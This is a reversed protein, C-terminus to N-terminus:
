LRNSIISAGMKHSIENAADRVMNGLFTIDADKVRSKIFSISIAAITNGSYGFIPAGVCASEPQLERDEFSYGRQRTKILDEKLKEYSVITRETYKIFNVGSNLYNKIQDDDYTSLIAKGLATCYMPLHTGLNVSNVISPIDEVRHIYMVENNVETALFVTKGTEKSLKKMTEQAINMLNNKTIVSSGIEFVDISLRFTKFDVNDYEIINKELLTYVLDFTSSKPIDLAKSIDLQTLPKDSKALLRIIDITRAATRNIKM